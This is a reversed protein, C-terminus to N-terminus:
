TKCPKPQFLLVVWFSPFDLGVEFRIPGFMMTGDVQVMGFYNQKLFLMLKPTVGHGRVGTRHLFQVSSLFDADARDESCWEETRVLERAAFKGIRKSVEQCCGHQGNADRTALPSLLWIQIM